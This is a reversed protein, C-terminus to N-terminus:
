TEPNGAVEGEKKRKEYRSKAFSTHIKDVTKNNNHNCPHTFYSASVRDKSCFDAKYKLAM